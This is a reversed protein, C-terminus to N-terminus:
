CLKGRRGFVEVPTEHFQLSMGLSEDDGSNSVHVQETAGRPTSVDVAVVDAMKSLKMARGTRGPTVLKM